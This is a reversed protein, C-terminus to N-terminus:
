EHIWNEGLYHEGIQKWCPNRQHAGVAMEKIYNNGNLSTIAIKVKVYM